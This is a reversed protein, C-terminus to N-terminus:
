YAEPQFGEPDEEQKEGDYFWLDTSYPKADNQPLFHGHKSDTEKVVM